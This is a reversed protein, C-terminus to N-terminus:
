LGLFFPGSNTLWLIIARFRNEFTYVRLVFFKPTNTSNPEVFVGM